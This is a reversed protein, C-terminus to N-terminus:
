GMISGPHVVTDECTDFVAGDLATLALQEREAAMALARRVIAEHKAEL